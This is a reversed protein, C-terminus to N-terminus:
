SYGYQLGEPDAGAQKYNYMDLECKCGARIEDLLTRVLIRGGVSLKLKKINNSDLKQFISATSIKEGTCIYLTNLIVLM